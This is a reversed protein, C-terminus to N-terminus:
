PRCLPISIAKRLFITLCCVREGEMFIGTNGRLPDIIDYRIIVDFLFSIIYLKLDKEMFFPGPFYEASGTRCFTKYINDPKGNM